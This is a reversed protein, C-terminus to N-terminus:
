ATPKSVAAIFYGNHWESHECWPDGHSNDLSTRVEIALSVPLGLERLARTTGRRVWDWNWDDIILVFDMDLAPLALSIGDYQDQEEHPGDFLFINHTGLAEYRVARFDRALVSLAIGPTLYRSVNAFFERAPGGFESWNDIATARLQNGAIASCLTSGQWSGVELYRPEPVAGVLANIFQRYRWGSMGPMGLLEPDLTRETTRAADFCARVAPALPHLTDGFANVTVHPLAPPVGDEM